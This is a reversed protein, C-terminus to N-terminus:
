AVIKCGKNIESIDSHRYFSRGGIHVPAIYGQRQWKYLTPKKINLMRCLEDATVLKDENVTAPPTALENKARQILNDAFLLLDGIKIAVTIDAGHEVLDNLKM